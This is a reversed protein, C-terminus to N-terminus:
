TRGLVAGLLHHRVTLAELYLPHKLYWLGAAWGCVGVLVAGAIPLLPTHPSWGNTAMLAAVPSCALVTLGASRLYVLLYDAPVTHTLRELDGKVLFITFLADGIRSAAAMALGGFCAVTFLATGALNRKFEVKLQRTMEGTVTYIEHTMTVAVYFVGALSLMSLPLSAGLWTDGYINSIVPGSLIALGTFAPWLLATLIAVIRLYTDRLSLKRRHQDAFDVFVVRAIVLHLNDWLLSNLGAARSYLGLASLGIIRGILIDTLRTTVGSVAGITLMQLGFRTIRRWDHLGLRISVFEWGAVNFCVVSFLTTAINAWAISMYSFGAFALSVAMGTNLLSKFVNIVAIFRFTGTRELCGSPIREFIHLLPAIGLLHLVSRVGDDGFFQAGVESVGFVFASCLINLAANITFVTKLVPASLEQERVILANLGFSRLMDTIGVVAVAVAYIGMERPTLMRAMAVSGAFAIVFLATQSLGMWALSRRVSISM